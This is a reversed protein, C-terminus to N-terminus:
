GAPWSANKIRRGRGRTRRPRKTMPPPLEVQGSAKELDTVALQMRNAQGLIHLLVQVRERAGAARDFIALMDRFPGATIRVPDGPEFPHLPLGGRAEIEGLRRRILQIVEDPLPVPLHDFAVVRRLGPTWQISSFGVIQFDVKVFLYCPFFPKTVGEKNPKATELEPLYTQLGRQQLTTAVQYEANPKTHLTYWQEVTMM